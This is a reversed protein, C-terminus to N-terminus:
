SQRMLPEQTHVGNAQIGYTRILRYTLVLIQGQCSPDTMAGPYGVMATSFAGDGAVSLDAGFQEGEFASNDELILFSTMESETWSSTVMQWGVHYRRVGGQKVILREMRSRELAIVNARGARTVGYKQSLSSSSWGSNM